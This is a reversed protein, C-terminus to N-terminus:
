DHEEAHHSAVALTAFVVTLGGFILAQIAGLLTELGYFLVPILWPILFAMMLLLVEGATMNGFLRFTFSVIRVFESILELTGVFIDIFGYFLGSLASKIKGRVLLGLAGFFQNFRFFKKFYDKGLSSIGWYEVSIFSVLALMLPVNVDTNAPRFLATHVIFGEYAPFISGAISNLLTDSQGEHGWGIVNYFPLLGMWANTLVFLFITGCIALFRRSNEKGAIGEVFDLMIQIIVECFNQLGTPVLKMKRTGFFFLTSLVLVSMLSTILTNSFYIPGLKFFPEPGHEGLGYNAALHVGPQPVPFFLAGIVILLLALVVVIIIKGRRNVNPM